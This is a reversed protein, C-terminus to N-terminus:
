DSRLAFTPDVALARRTPVVCALLAVLALLLSVGAFTAPDTPTVGWLQSAILRTLALSGALGLVVGTSILWVARRGVLNVVESASAGLAMRIGIEHTRQAVAYAMVGYVGIAALGTAALAFVGLVLVYYRFRREGLYQEVTAVNALPRNPDIQAVARRAAPVLSMPDASSRLVFTMQGFMNAWPNRYRSPQQLYSAYIVPEPGTQRSRIPIDRVVGVVERPREEPVVDFTFRKGIPDAGPWFRRATSENVIAVWPASATDLDSFDRGRVLPANMTAFFNPTVLFYAVSLAHRGREHQGEIAVAVTPVILSNVPPFSSGAVSAAGPVERLKNFVREMTLAPPPRIEFYPFDHYSGVRHLYHQWPIRFEFTLLGEPDFNLDRGALRLFSNMLLGSGIQLVLALAIQAAVLIERLRHRGPRTGTGRASENLSVTLDRQSGALAPVVGFLLGTGVSLLALVGLMPLNLGVEAIRPAGPPPSMAVLARLGGWAVLVGLAGGVLSLLVSETLLQRIIRGRRAGLAVRLAIQRHRVTGRALLLGAVNACAILLVLAVAAELTLLPEM